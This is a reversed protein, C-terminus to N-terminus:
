RALPLKRELTHTPKNNADLLLMRVFYIGSGNGQQTRGNWLVENVGATAQLSRTWIARGRMDLIEIRAKAAKDTRINFMVGDQLTRYSLAPGGLLANAIGTSPFTLTDITVLTQAAKQNEYELKVWDASRAVNAVRVEDYIGSILADASWLARGIWASSRMGDPLKQNSASGILRGDKYVNVDPVALSFHVLQWAGQEWGDIADDAGVFRDGESTADGSSGAISAVTEGGFRGVWFNNNPSGSGLSIAHSAYGNFPTAAKLWLSLTGQENPFSGEPLPGFSFHQAAPGAGNGGLSDALGIVGEHAAHTAPLNFPYAPNRNAVANPRPSANTGAGLHFVSVFGNAESFVGHANSVTTATSNGFHMWIEQNALNGKVTDVLVWVAGKQATADWHDIEHKLLTTGDTKTFRLSAGQPGAGTFVAAQTADFRVLVPVNVVNGTVNAGTSSTNLKIRRHGTWDDKYDGGAVAAAVTLRIVKNLTDTASTGRLTYNAAAAATTPVGSIAGNLTDLRLGAPLATVASWKTLARGSAIPAATFSAGVTATLTDRPHYAVTPPGLTVIIRIDRTTTNNPGIATVTRNQGNHVATPTGSIIGTASDFSLGAPISGNISYRTPTGTITPTANAAVTLQLRLTDRSATNTSVYRLNELGQVVAVRLVVTASDQGSSGWGRVSVNTATATATPTGSITGSASNLTLGTPLTGSVVKFSDVPGGNYTATRTFAVDRLATLTDNGFHLNTIPVVPPTQTQTAGLTVVSAGPVQTAYELRTWNSDRVVNSLRVEDYVGNQVQDWQYWLARGIFAHVREVDPIAQDFTGTSGRQTGNKYIKVASANADTQDITIHVLQWVNPAWGDTTNNSTQIPGNSETNGVGMRTAIRNGNRGFWINNSATINPGGLSMSHRFGDSAEPKQWMSMTVKGNPFTGAPLPGFAFHQQPHELGAGDAILSDAGGIVGAKSTYGEPLNMPTAPNGSAVANPRPTTRDGGMHFVSVYGNSSNFVSAASGSDSVGARNWYMRLNTTNDGAVDLRVWVAASQGVSDWTDISHPLRATGAANTFRLSARANVTNFVDAHTSDLRILTPFDTVPNAVNAGSATTNVAIDRYRLWTAYNEQAVSATALGTIVVLSSSVFKKLM